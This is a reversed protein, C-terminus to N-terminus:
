RPLNRQEEKGTEKGDQLIEVLLNSPAKRNRIYQDISWKIDDTEIITSESEGNLYKIDIKYKIKNM